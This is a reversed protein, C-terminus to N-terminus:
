LEDHVGEDGNANGNGNGRMGGWAKVTGGALVKRLFLELRGVPIGTEGKGDRFWFPFVESRSLDEVAIGEAMGVGDDSFGDLGVVAAMGPWLRVDIVTFVVAGKNDGEPSSYRKALGGILGKYRGKMGEEGAFYHVM